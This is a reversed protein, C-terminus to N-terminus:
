PFNLFNDLSFASFAVPASRRGAPFGVGSNTHPYGDSPMSGPDSGTDSFFLSGPDRTWFPTPDGPKPCFVTFVSSFYGIFEFVDSAKPGMNRCFPGM